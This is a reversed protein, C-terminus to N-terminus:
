RHVVVQAEAHLGIVGSLGVVSSRLSRTCDAVSPVLSRRLEFIALRSEPPELGPTV